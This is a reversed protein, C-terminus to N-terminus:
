VVNVILIACTQAALQVSTHCERSARRVENKERAGTLLRSVDGQRL